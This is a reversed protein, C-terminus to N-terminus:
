KIRQVNSPRPPISTTVPKSTEFLRGLGMMGVGVALGVVTFAVVLARLLWLNVAFSTTTADIARQAESLTAKYGATIEGFEGLDDAIRSMSTGLRDSEGALGVVAPVLEGISASQRRLDGPLDRLADDVRRLSSDFPEDPDYNVGVFSLARLTGDIAAAAQIAAPMSQSIADLDNPLDNALFDSVDTLGQAGTVAASSLESVGSAAADIGDRIEGTTEDLLDVTEVMADVASASVAISAELDRTVSGVMYLGLVLAIASMTLATLGSYRLLRGLRASDTNQFM